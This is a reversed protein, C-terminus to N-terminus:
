TREERVEKRYERKGQYMLRLGRWFGMENKYVKYKRIVWQLILFWALSKNMASFAAGKGRFFEEDWGVRWSSDGIHLDSIVTPQFRIKLKKKLCHFLFTNEEGMLYKTGAGIREDFWVGTKLVTERRFGIEVSAIKMSQLYGVEHPSAPYKKFEKEIGMVEFGIIDGDPYQRFAELIADGYGDRYVLDDDALICIDATSNQIAMNRSKSLGREKTNIWLVEQGRHNITEVSDADCQNVVVAPTSVNMQELLSYGKQHMTSILTQITMM